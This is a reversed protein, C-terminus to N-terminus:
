VHGHTHATGATMESPVHVMRILKVMYVCSDKFNYVLDMEEKAWALGENGWHLNRAIPRDVDFGPGEDRIAVYMLAYGAPHEQWLFYSHVKKNPDLDNGHGIANQIIEDIAIRLDGALAQGHEISKDTKIRESLKAKIFELASGTRYISDSPTPMSHCEAGMAILQDLTLRELDTM